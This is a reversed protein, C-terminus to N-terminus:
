AALRFCATVVGDTRLSPSSGGGVLTRFASEANRRAQFAALAGAPVSRVLLTGLGGVQRQRGELGNFWQNFGSARVGPQMAVVTRLTTLFDTDRRLQMELTESVDTATTQFTQKEHTRVNSRWLQAGGLSVALGLVLIGGAVLLWLRRRGGGASKRSLAPAADAVIQTGAEFPEPM